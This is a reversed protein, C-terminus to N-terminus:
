WIYGIYKDLAIAGDETTITYLAGPEADETFHVTQIQGDIVVASDYNGCVPCAGLCAVVLGVVLNMMM